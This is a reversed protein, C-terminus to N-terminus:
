LKVEKTYGKYHARLTKGKMDTTDLKFVEHEEVGLVFYTDLYGEKNEIAIYVYKTKYSKIGSSRHNYYTDNHHYFAESQMVIEKDYLDYSNILEQDSDKFYNENVMSAESFYASDILVKIVNNERVFYLTSDSTAEEKKLFYSAQPVGYGHAYDYYPYLDSSAQIKEFLEMVSLTSDSQWACAAFGATLPSAFSTGTLEQIGRSSAVMTYGYASVNPKLRKDSSPGYSSWSAHINTWPNIAGVALVSDADAPAGITRWDYDAGENGAANVVLIGKAAAMNGTRTILATKGDMNARFYMRKTYGLSSNIIDAGNKDAWELGALWNEEDSLGESITNETRALLFDAGTAMGLKLDDTRGAINSLVMCGHKHGKFAYPKNKVFDYHAIIGNRKRIHEFEELYDVGPFGADFIAIRIGKGDYGANEFYEAGMRKLQAKALARKGYSLEEDDLVCLNATYNGAPILEKVFPLKSLASLDPNICVIANIWRLSRGTSDSHAAVIDIYDQRVPLDTYHDLPYNHKLRRDIAKQDFYSHPDFSVGDKDSFIVFYKAQSNVKTVSISLFCILLLSQIVHKM